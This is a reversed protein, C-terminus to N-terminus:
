SVDRTNASPENTKWFSFLRQSGEAQFIEEVLQKGCNLAGCLGKCCVFYARGLVEVRTRKNKLVFDSLWLVIHNLKTCREEVEQVKAEQQGGGNRELYGQLVGFGSQAWEVFTQCVLAITAQITSFYGQSSAFLRLSASFDCIEWAVWPVVFEVHVECQATNNCCFYLYLYIISWLQLWLGGFELMWACAVFSM